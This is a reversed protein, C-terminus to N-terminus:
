RSQSRHCPLRQPGLIILAVDDSLNPALLV